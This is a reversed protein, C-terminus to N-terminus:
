QALRRILRMQFALANQLSAIPLRENLGHANSGGQAHFLGTVGYTWIGANNLFRGDTAGPLLSPVVRVGPWTAESAAKIADMLSETMPPMPAETAEGLRRLLIKEDALVQRLTAELDDLREGPLVRCNLTAKARQPLANSAHGAELLTPVCTTRLSANYSASLRWLETEAVPEPPERLIGRLLGAMPEPETAALHEFYARTVPSLKMPFRHKELRQLGSVLRYIANDVRPTSSHGGPDTVELEFTQYVKEGAQIRHLFPQGQRDLQGGGGENLALEADILARHSKLLLAVGNHPGPILEEDCTLALILDRSLRVGQERMQMMALTFVAAMAKNDSVGRALYFGNEEVLQFPDRGWDERRAEVVDIHALLLLPKRTDSGKLRAVLNGKAPAGPPAVIQLDADRFGARRLHEAMAQAARTCSGSSDTTNIEVLEKFVAPLRPDASAAGTFLLLGLLLSKM